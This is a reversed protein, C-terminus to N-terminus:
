LSCRERIADVVPATAPFNESWPVRLVSMGRSWPHKGSEIEAILGEYGDRLDKLYDLSVGRECSRDRQRVRDAAVHPDVDLYVLISPPRLWCSMVNYANEYVKWLKEDINGYRIHLRAFVRDGPLGRDLVAGKFGMNGLAENAALTQLNFRTMLLHMQMPFAYRKPDRYFDELLFNTEVPEFIPRLSLDSAITHTLTTKGAGIIGEIWVVAGM